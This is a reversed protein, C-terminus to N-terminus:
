SMGAQMSTLLVGGGDVSKRPKRPLSCSGSSFGKNRNGSCSLEGLGWKSLSTATGGSRECVNVGGMMSGDGVASDSPSAGSTCARKPAPLM